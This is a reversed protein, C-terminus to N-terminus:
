IAPQIAPQRFRQKALVAAVRRDFATAAGQWSGAVIGGIQPNAGPHEAIASAVVLGGSSITAQDLKTRIPDLAM